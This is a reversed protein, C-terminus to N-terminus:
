WLVVCLLGRYNLLYNGVEVRTLVWITCLHGSLTHFSWLLQFCLKRPLPLLGLLLTLEKPNGRQVTRIQSHSGVCFGSETMLGWASNGVCERKRAIKLCIQCQIGNMFIEAIVELLLFVFGCSWPWMLFWWHCNGPVTLCGIQAWKEIKYECNIEGVRCCHLGPMAM